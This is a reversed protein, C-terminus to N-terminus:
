RGSGAAMSFVSETVILTAGARPSRALLADLRDLRDRRYVRLQAGSARCGEILSAQAERAAFFADGRGVLAPIIGLNALYGSGFVLAAEAGKLRAIAAELEEHVDTHGTLLRSAGGGVGHREIAALAAAKVRPHDALGLYNNSGLNVLSRGDLTLRPARGGEVPRPTRPRQM